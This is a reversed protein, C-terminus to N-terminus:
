KWLDLDADTFNVLKEYAAWAIMRHANGPAPPPDPIGFISPRSQQTAGALLAGALVISHLKM